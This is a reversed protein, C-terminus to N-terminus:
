NRISDIKFFSFLSSFTTKGKAIMQIGSPLMRYLQIFANVGSPSSFVIKQFFSLDVKEAKDNIENTYVPIDIVENGLQELLESLYKLGRNSRPLLIRKRTLRMVKFYNILGEASESESEIDAYFGHKNLELSTAKGVSAIYVASLVKMDLKMENLSEFFYYVGYRSTFIIWDFVSIEKISTYLRKNNEIKNIKILPTHIANVYRISTENSTGTLLVQSKCTEKKEFSVVEGIILLIPTPYKIISYQLEKLSSYWIKQNPLSVSYILAVPLDERRGVAILKRAIVSLNAGSMYYVLTDTTPVQINEESHGTVFAVSSALGRYTLPIHTYSSMAIGSSIGPIINVEVFRSQLFDIEERGHAFIMPDGGKLRVVRKGSIAERYLFENIEGQHFRHVEKRKGVYVKEVLFRSLFEQNLLDDYFIIDASLLAKYGGITLLDPDGPGFGVLSVKGYRKRIDQICFLNKVNKDNKRGVIALNGQLSHTEFPLICAIRAEMGLRILACTAVILADIFGNDMKAIREEINGRISVVELDPRIKLLETKRKQSSTGVRARPPLQELTLNNRSILSDSKDMAQFLAFLELDYPLPYPLDKASHVAIDAKNYILAEDLERTFFDSISEEELFFSSVNSIDFLAVHKNKDGFSEITTLQYDINPFFSFVEKVQLLSLPSNRSIVRLNGKSFKSTDM